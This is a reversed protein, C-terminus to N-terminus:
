VTKASSASNNIGRRRAWISKAMSLIAGGGGVGAAWSVTKIASWDLTPPAAVLIPVAAQWFTSLAREKFDSWYVKATKIVSTVTPTVPVPAPQIPGTPEPTPPTTM